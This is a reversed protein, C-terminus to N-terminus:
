NFISVNTFALVIFSYVLLVEEIIWNEPSGQMQNNYIEYPSDGLITSVCIELYIDGM